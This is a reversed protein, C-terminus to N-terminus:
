QSDILECMKHCAVEGQWTGDAQCTYATCGCKDWVYGSDCVVDVTDGELFPEARPVPSGNEVNM